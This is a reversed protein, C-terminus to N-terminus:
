LDDPLLRFNPFRGDLPRIARFDRRDVTLVLDTAHDAALVVAMADALDLDLGGYQERVMVARTLTDSTIDPLVIRGRQVRKAIAKVAHDAASRGARSTAVQHVETLALPSLIVLGARSLVDLAGVHDKDDPDFAALLGGTDAVIIM